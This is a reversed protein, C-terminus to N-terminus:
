DEIKILIVNQAAMLLMKQMAVIMNQLPASFILLFYKKGLIIANKAFNMNDMMMDAM